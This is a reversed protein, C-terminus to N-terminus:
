DEIKFKFAVIDNYELQHQDSILDNDVIGKVMDGVIECERLWFTENAVNIKMYNDEGDNMIPTVAGHFEPIEDLDIAM